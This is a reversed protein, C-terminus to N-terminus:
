LLSTVVSKDCDCQRLSLRDCAVNDCLDAERHSQSLAVFATVMPKM